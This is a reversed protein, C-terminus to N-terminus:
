GPAPARLPQEGLRALGELAAPDLKAHDLRGPDLM